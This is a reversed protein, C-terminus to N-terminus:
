DASEKIFGRCFLVKLLHQKTPSHRENTFVWFNISFSSGKIPPVRRRQRRDNTREDSLASMRRGRRRGDVAPPPLGDTWHSFGRKATKAALDGSGAPKRKPIGWIRCFKPAGATAMYFPSQFKPTKISLFITLGAMRRTTSRKACRETPTFYGWPQRVGGRPDPKAGRLPKPRLM